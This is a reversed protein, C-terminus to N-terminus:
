INEEELLTTGSVPYYLKDNFIEYLCIVNNNDKVPIFQYTLTNTDWIKLYKFYGYLKGSAVTGGNNLGGIAIPYNGNPYGDGSTITKTTTTGSQTISVTYGNCAWTMYTSVVNSIDVQTHSDLITRVSAGSTTLQLHFRDSSSSSTRAGLIVPTSSNNRSFCFEVNTWTTSSKIDTLVAALNFFCYPLVQYPINNGQTTLLINRLQSM